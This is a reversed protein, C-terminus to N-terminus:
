DYGKARQRIKKFIRIPTGRFSFRDRLCKEIYKLYPEKIGEPYNTFIVFSPPEVGVQTIYLIKVGKGKYLPLPAHSIVERMFRNMEATNIRKKRENIIEDIIPFIKTIRKKEIGSTTIVPVYNFFWMKRELDSLLRKYALEPEPM